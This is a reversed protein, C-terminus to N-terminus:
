ACIRALHEIMLAADEVEVSPAGASATSLVSGDVGAMVYKARPDVSGTPFGAMHLMVNAGREPSIQLNPFLPVLAWFLPVLYRRM